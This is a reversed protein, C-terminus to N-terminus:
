SIDLRTAGVFTGEVDVDLLGDRCVARRAVSRFVVSEEETPETPGGIYKEEAARITGSVGRVTVRVPDERVASVCALAARASDVSGRRTRVIAHGTGEEHAFSIVRLDAEASGADGYLNQAAFWLSRQFDVAEFSADPWTELGAVLYRWRPRLHKPLPNM